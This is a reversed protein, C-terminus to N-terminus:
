RRVWSNRLALLVGAAIFAGPPLMALLFGMDVDFVNMELPAAWDGLVASAGHLLSGRGVLERAAGLLMLMAALSATARTTRRILAAPSGTDDLWSALLVGNLAALPAFLALPTYLSYAYARALLEAGGILGALLLMAGAIRLHIDLRRQVLAYCLAALPTTIILVLSLGFAHVVTDSLALAPCLLVLRRADRDLANM